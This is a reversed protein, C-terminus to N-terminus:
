TAEGRHAPFVVPKRLQEGRPTYLKLTQAGFADLREGVGEGADLRQRADRARVFSKAGALLRRYGMAHRTPYSRAALGAAGREDVEDVARRAQLQM